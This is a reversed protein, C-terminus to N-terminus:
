VIIVTIIASEIRGSQSSFSIKKRGFETLPLTLDYFLFLMLLLSTLEIEVMCQVQENKNTLTRCLLIYATAIKIGENKKMEKRSQAKERRGGEM